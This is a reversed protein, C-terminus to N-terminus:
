EKTLVDKVEFVKRDKFEEQKSDNWNDVPRYYGVVRSFIETKTREM